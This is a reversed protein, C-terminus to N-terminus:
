RPYPFRSHSKQRAVCDLLEDARRLLSNQREAAGYRRTTPDCAQFRGQCHQCVLSKGLYEVRIQLRRGCTPCEQVFYTSNSM